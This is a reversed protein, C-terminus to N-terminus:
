RSPRRWRADADDVAHRHQVKGVLLVRSGLDVHVDHHGARAAEDLDLAGGLLQGEAARLEVREELRASPPM